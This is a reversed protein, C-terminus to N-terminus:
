DISSEKSGDPIGVLDFTGMLENKVTGLMKIERELACVERGLAEIKDKTAKIRDRCLLIRYYTFRDLLQGLILGWAQTDSSPNLVKHKNYWKQMQRVSPSVGFKSMISNAIDQWPQGSRRALISAVVVGTPYGKRTM